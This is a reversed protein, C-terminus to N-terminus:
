KRAKSYPYIIDGTKYEPPWLVAERTPERFQEMNNPVVDHFQTAMVRAKAFEGDKGFAAEGIVTMVAHTRLYEAIKDPDLSKTASVAAELLQGGAYGFPAFGYGFPDLGQGPAQAQYKALMDKTGPFNFKETPLFIEFNILGNLLSGLQMKFTAAVLGIMNGGFIKPELKVENAARVLGVTDPPYAGVFVIDPNTAQIARAIPTYDTTTPPYRQDYVIKLGAAKANDRAGDTANKGFEADAGVIAITQPKPTQQQALAFFGESFAHLSDPGTPVMSFYRPYHFGKNAELGLFGIAVMKHQIIIPLSAVIMNTAYPGIVLDVKDVDILKTYIGPVNAPNSQDDYYVLEVPRGLLGGKANVDDRWIQLALLIQKGNPAVGGTLAMSFGVKIPDAAHALGGMALIFAVALAAGLRSWARM